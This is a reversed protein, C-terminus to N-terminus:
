MHGSCINCVAKTDSGFDVLCKKPPPIDLVDVYMLWMM